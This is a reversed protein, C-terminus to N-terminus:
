VHTTKPEFAPPVAAPIAAVHVHQRLMACEVTPQEYFIVTMHRDEFQRRFVVGQAGAMPQPPLAEVRTGPELINHPERTSNQM